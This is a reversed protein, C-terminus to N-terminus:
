LPFIPLTPVEKVKNRGEMLLQNKGMYFNHKRKNANITRLLGHTKIM